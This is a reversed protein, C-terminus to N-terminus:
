RYRRVRIRERSRLLRPTGLGRREVPPKRGSMVDGDCGSRSRNVVMTIRKVAVMVWGVVMTISVCREEHMEEKARREEGESSASGVCGFECRQEQLANTCKQKEVRLEDSLKELGHSPNALATSESM